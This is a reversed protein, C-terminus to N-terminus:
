TRCSAKSAMRAPQHIHLSVQLDYLLVSDLTAVALVMRYPLGLANV